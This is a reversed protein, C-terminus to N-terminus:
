TIEPYCSEKTTITFIGEQNMREWVLSILTPVLSFWIRKQQERCWTSGAETAPAYQSPSPYFLPIGRGRGMGQVRSAGTLFALIVVRKTVNPKYLTYRQNVNNVKWHAISTFIM